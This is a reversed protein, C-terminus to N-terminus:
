IGPVFLDDGDTHASVAPNRIEIGVDTTVSLDNAVEKSLTAEGRANNGFGDYHWVVEDAEVRFSTHFSVLADKSDLEDGWVEARDFWAVRFHLFFDFFNSSCM